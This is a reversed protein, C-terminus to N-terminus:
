PNSGQKLRKIKEEASRKVSARMQESMNKDAALLELAKEAEAIAEAKRGLAEYADGMSDHANASAPYTEVMLKFAELAEAQKGNRLLWYANANLIDERIVGNYFPHFTSDSRYRVVAKRFAEIAEKSQGTNMMWMFNRNTLIWERAVPVPDTLNKKLFDVTRKIIAKSEPTNNYIDFAHMGELYNVLEIRADLQLAAQVFNEIGMNLGQGDLGARVVLTPVDQRIRGLSDPSGYYVVLTRIYERGPKLALSVGRPTNASCTWIGVREADINFAAANARLHDLVAACDEMVTARNPRAQHNVAIMGNAAILRAWDRYVRWRPLQMSGVGNNFIVVPLNSRKNFGPPYYIDLVLSTDNVTKFVVNEKVQVKAMEPVQYVIPRETVAQAFSCLAICVAAISCYLRHM